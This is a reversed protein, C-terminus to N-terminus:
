PVLKQLSHGQAYFSNLVLHNYVVETRWWGLGAMVTVLVAVILIRGYPLQRGQVGKWLVYCGGLGIILWTVEMSPADYPTDRFHKHLMVIVYIILVVPFSGSGEDGVNQSGGSYVYRPRL